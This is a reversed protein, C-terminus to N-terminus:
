TSLLDQDCAQMKQDSGKLFVETGSTIYLQKGGPYNASVIEKSIFHFLEKKNTEDRLFDNWKGPVKSKGAVM